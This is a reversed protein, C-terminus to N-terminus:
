LFKTFTATSCNKKREEVRGFPPSYPLARKKREEVRGFPPSNGWVCYFLNAQELRVAKRCSQRATKECGFAPLAYPSIPGVARVGFSFRQRLHEEVEHNTKKGFSFFKRTELSVFEEQYIFFNSGALILLSKRKPLGFGARRSSVFCCGLANADDNSSFWWFLKM